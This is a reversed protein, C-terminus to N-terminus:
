ITVNGKDGTQSRVTTVSGGKLCLRMPFHTSLKLQNSFCWFVTASTVYCGVLTFVSNVQSLIHKLNAEKKVDNYQLTSCPYLPETLIQQQLIKLTSM